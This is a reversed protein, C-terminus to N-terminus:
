HDSWYFFNYADERVFMHFECFSFMQGTVHVKYLGINAKIVLSSM